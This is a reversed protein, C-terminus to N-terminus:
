ASRMAEFDWEYSRLRDFIAPDLKRSRKSAEPVKAKVKLVPAKVPNKPKAIQRLDATVINMTSHELHIDM